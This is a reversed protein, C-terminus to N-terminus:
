PPASGPVQPGQRGQNRGPCVEAQTRSLDGAVFHVALGTLQTMPAAGRRDNLSAAWGANRLIETIVPGKAAAYDNMDRGQGGKM